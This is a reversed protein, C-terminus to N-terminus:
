FERAGRAPFLAAHLLLDQEPVGLYYFVVHLLLACSTEPRASGTGSHRLNHVLIM